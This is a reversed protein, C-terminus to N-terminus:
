SVSVIRASIDSWNSAVIYQDYLSAPVYVSGYVGSTATTYDGIPTSTFVDNGLTCVTSAELYLSLLTVCNSFANNGINECAPFSVGTLSSCAQFATSGISMCVPFSISTLSSCNSFASNGIVLCESFSINALSECGLFANNGIVTCAPFSVEQLGQYSYFAYDGISIVDSDEIISLSRAVIGPANNPTMNVVVLDNKKTDYSGRETVILATQGVLAGSEVVKGEDAETYTNPVSATVQSYGRGAGLSYEGNETITIPEMDVDGSIEGSELLANIMDIKESVAGYSVVKQRIEDYTQKSVMTGLLDTIYNLHSVIDPRDGVVPPTEGSARVLAELAHETELLKDAISLSM